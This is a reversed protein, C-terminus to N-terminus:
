AVVEKRGDRYELRDGFRSPINEHNQSGPRVPIWGVVLKKSSPISSNTLTRPAVIQGGETQPTIM